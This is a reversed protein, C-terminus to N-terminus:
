PIKRSLVITKDINMQLLLVTPNQPAQLVMDNKAEVGYFNAVIYGQCSVLTM